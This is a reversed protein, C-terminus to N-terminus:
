GTPFLRQLFHLSPTIYTGARDSVAANCLPSFCTFFFFICPDNIKSVSVKDVQGSAMEVLLAMLLYKTLFESFLLLQKYQLGTFFYHSPEPTCLAIAPLPYIFAVPCFIRVQSSTRHFVTQIDFRYFKIECLCRRLM